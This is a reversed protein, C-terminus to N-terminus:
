QRIKKSFELGNTSRAKEDIRYQTKAQDFSLDTDMLEYEHTLDDIFAPLLVKLNVPAPGNFLKNAHSLLNTACSSVLTNYFEPEVSLKGARQVMDTFLARRHVLDTKLPYMYVKHKRHNTRLQIVDEEDAIVYMLEFERYIGRVPHFSEGATRRLEISISIYRGDSFGFSVFTHGPGKFKSFPEVVLWVSALQQLDFVDDTWREDFDTTSRYRFRRVNKISVSDGDLSVVPARAMDSVWDRDAEPRKLQWLAVIVAVTVYFCLVVQKKNRIRFWAFPFGLALVAMVFWRLIEPGVHSYWIAGICWLLLLVFLTRSMGRVFLRVARRFLTRKPKALGADVNESETIGM